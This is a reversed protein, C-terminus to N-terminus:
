SVSTSASSTPGNGTTVEQDLVPTPDKIQLGVFPHNGVGEHQDTDHDEGGELGLFRCARTNAGTGSRAPNEDDVRRLGHNWENCLYLKFLVEEAGLVHISRTEKSESLMGPVTCTSAVNLIVHVHM